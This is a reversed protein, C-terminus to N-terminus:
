RTEPPRQSALIQHLNPPTDTLFHSPSFDMADGADASRAPAPDMFYAMDGLSASTGGMVVDSDLAGAVSGAAGMIPIGRGAGGGAGGSPEPSAALAGPGWSWSPINSWSSVLERYTLASDNGPAASCRHASEPLTQLYSVHPPLGDGHGIFPTSTGAATAAAHAARAPPRPQKDQGSYVECDPHKALYNKLNKRLPAANGTVKRCEVRNWIPVHQNEPNVAGPRKDQDKYEECDKNAALYRALNRRLPAANGAIKRCEKRNWITVHRADEVAKPCAGDKYTLDPKRSAAATAAASSPINTANAGGGGGGGKSGAGRGIGVGGTRVGGVGGAGGSALVAVPEPIATRVPQGRRLLVPQASPGSPHQPRVTAGVGGGSGGVGGAGATAGRGGGVPMSSMNTVVTGAGTFPAHTTRLHRGPPPPEAAHARKTKQSAM